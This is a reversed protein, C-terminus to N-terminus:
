RQWITELANAWDVARQALVRENLLYRRANAALERRLSPQEILTRIASVWSATDNAALLGTEGHRVSESYVPLDSYIGATGQAAYDLFKIDSKARNFPTDRLPALAIDWRIHGTFWPLFQPYETVAREIQRVPFPLTRIRQWVEDRYIGGIIQLELPRSSTRGIEALAPLLILLDDDHTMTGMYGLILRKDEFMRPINSGGFTTLLREDLANQVVYIYPNFSLYHRRLTPTSTIIGDAQELFIKVCEKKTKLKTDTDSQGLLDDDIQYVFKAGSARIQKVLAHAKESTIATHWQRDVIIIDAKQGSVIDTEQGSYFTIPTAHFRRQISPHSLPQLLRICSGGHPVGAVTYEYLILIQTSM